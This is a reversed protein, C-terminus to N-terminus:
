GMSTSRTPATQFQQYRPAPKAAAGVAAAVPKSVAASSAPTWRVPAANYASGPAPTAVPVPAAGKALRRTPPAAMSGMSTQPPAEDFPRYRQPLQRQQQQQQQQQPPARRRQRFRRQPQPASQQAMPPQLQQWQQPPPPSPSLADRLAEGRSGGSGSDRGTGSGGSGFDGPTPRAGPHVHARIAALVAPKDVPATLLHSGGAAMFESADAATASPPMVAVVPLMSGARRLAQTAAKAGSRAMFGAALVLQANPLYQLAAPVQDGDELLVYRCQLQQLLTALGRRRTTDGEAVVVRVGAVPSPLTGPPLAPPEVWRMAPTPETSSFADYGAVLTTRDPQLAGGGPVSSAPALSGRVLTAEHAQLRACLDAMHPRDSPAFQWCERMMTRLTPDVDPPLHSDLTDGGLVKAGVSMLGMGEWPDRGRTVMEYLLQHAVVCPTLLPKRGFCPTADGGCGRVVGFSWVDSATSYQRQRLSEPAMWRVPGVNSSTVGVDVPDSLVRAFRCDCPPPRSHHCVPPCGCCLASACGFDGVRLNYHEDVLVNRAALDRHVVNERHLHSVGAAVQAAMSVLKTHDTM